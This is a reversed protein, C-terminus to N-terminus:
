VTVRLVARSGLPCFRMVRGLMVGESATVASVGDELMVVMGRVVRGTIASRVPGCSMGHMSVRSSVGVGTVSDDSRVIGAKIPAAPTPQARVGVAHRCPMHAGEVVVEGQLLPHPGYPVAPCGGWAGAATGGGHQSATRPPAVASAAPPGVDPKLQQLRVSAAASVEPPVGPM